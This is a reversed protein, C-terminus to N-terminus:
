VSLNFVLVSLFVEAVGREMVMKEVMGREVRTAPPSTM